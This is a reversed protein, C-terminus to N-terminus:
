IVIVHPQLRAVIDRLVSERPSQLSIYALSHEYYIDIIETGFRLTGEIFDEFEEYAPLDCSSLVDRSLISAISTLMERFPIAYDFAQGSYLALEWKGERLCQVVMPANLEIM